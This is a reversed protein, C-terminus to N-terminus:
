VACRAGGHILRRGKVPRRDFFRISRKKEATASSGWGPIHHLVELFFFFIVFFPDTWNRPVGVANNSVFAARGCSQKRAASPYALMRSPHDPKEGQNM